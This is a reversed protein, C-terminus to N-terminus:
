RSAFRGDSGRHRRVGPDWKVAGAAEVTMVVVERRMPLALAFEAASLGCRRDGAAGVRDVRGM